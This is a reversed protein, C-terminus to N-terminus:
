GPENPEPADEDPEFMWRGPADPDLEDIDSQDPDEPDPQMAPRYGTPSASSRRGPGTSPVATLDTPREASSTIHVAGDKTLRAGSAASM